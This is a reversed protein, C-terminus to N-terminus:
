YAGDTESMPLTADEDAPLEPAPARSSQVAPTVRVRRSGRARSASPGQEPGRDEPAATVALIPVPAPPQAIPEVRVPTAKTPTPAPATAGSLAANLGSVRTLLEVKFFLMAAVGAVAAMGLRLGAHPRRRARRPVPAPAAVVVADAVPAVAAARFAAAFETVTPFREDNSRALARALVSDLRGPLGSPPVIRSAMGPNCATLLEYAIVALAFQDSAADVDATRGEIQEPAMYEPTGFIGKDMPEDGCNAKSIGFDLIKVLDSDRGEIPVLFVNDPKLDRHVIGHAHAAALGAAIQDVIDVVDPAALPGVRSLRGALSEGSLYEMVLYATGDATTNHDIVQVVNPHQLLSTIRAERDFLAQADANDALSRLLVKIAYRGALRAHTAEYVAGMGGESVLRQLHYTGDLTQGESIV